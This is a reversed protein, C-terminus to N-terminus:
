KCRIDLRAEVGFSRASYSEHFALCKLTNGHREKNAPIQVVSAASWTKPNDPETANTQPHLASVEQDGLFWKLVAPPNGYHSVCKVTAVAGSDVTVNHGPPVHTGEHELRPRQPAVTL